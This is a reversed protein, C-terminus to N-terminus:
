AFEIRAGGRASSAYIADVIEMLRVARSAPGGTDATGRALCGFYHRYVATHTEREPAGSSADPAPAAEALEGDAGDGFIALPMLEAGGDTGLVRFSVEQRYQAVRLDRVFALPGDRFQIMAYLTDEVDAEPEDTVLGEAVDMLEYGDGTKIRDAFHSGTRAVVWAVEPEDLLYLMLDIRHATSDMVVGGGAIAKTRHWGRPINRTMTKLAEMAYISGFRGEDVAAKLARYEPRFILNSGTFFLAGSRARARSAADAIRRMEAASMAPPKELYVNRGAELAAIAIEEHAVPPTCIAVIDIDDRALLERYDDYGSEVVREAAYRGARGPVSDALAVVEGGAERVSPLHWDVGVRGAGIIGVRPRESM